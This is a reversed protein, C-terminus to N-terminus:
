RFIWPLRRMNNLTIYDISNMNRYFMFRIYMIYVLFM